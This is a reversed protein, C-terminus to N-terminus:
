QPLHEAPRGESLKQANQNKKHFGSKIGPNNYIDKM